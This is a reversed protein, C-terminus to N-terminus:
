KKVKTLGVGKRNWNWIGIFNFMLLFVSQILFFYHNTLFAFISWGIQALVLVYLGKINPVSILPVAIMVLITSIIELVKSIDM